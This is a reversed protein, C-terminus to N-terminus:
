SPGSLSAKELATGKHSSTAFLRLGHEHLHPLCDSFKAAVVPLRFLSGAAARVVKANLPNVTGECALVGSAGFAEASRLLTGFNGPDQIGAAAVLLPMPLAFMEELTSKRPVALAAVGQPHDTAVASDFVDNPLLITEVHSSLQQLLRQARDQSSERFFVAHLRLGSRIAEEIARIGELGIWSESEHQGLALTRRLEKLLANSRSSVARLRHHQSATKTAM